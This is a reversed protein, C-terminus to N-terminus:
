WSGTTYNLQQLAAIDQAGGDRLINRMQTSALWYNQADKDLKSLRASLQAASLTPSTEDSAAEQKPDSGDSGGQSPTGSEAGKLM